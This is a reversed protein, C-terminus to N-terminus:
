GNVEIKYCIVGELQWPIINWYNDKDGDRPRHALAWTSHNNRKDSHCTLFYGKGPENVKSIRVNALNGSLLVSSFYYM